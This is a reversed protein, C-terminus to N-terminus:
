ATALTRDAIEGPTGPNGNLLEGPGLVWFWQLRQHLLDLFVGIRFGPKNVHEDEKEVRNFDDKLPTDESSRERIQAVRLTDIVTAVVTSRPPAGGVAASGQSSSPGQPPTQAM